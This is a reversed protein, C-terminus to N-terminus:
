HRDCVRGTVVVGCAPCRRRPRITLRRKRIGAYVMTWVIAIALLAGQAIDADGKMEGVDAHVAVRM